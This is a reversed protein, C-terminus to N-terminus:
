SEQLCEIKRLANIMNDQGLNVNSVVEWNEDIKIPNKLNANDLNKSSTFIILEDILDNKLFSNMLEAGGEVLLTTIGEQALALLVHDLSLMGSEEKIPIYKCFSTRSKLFNRQSCLVLTESQGDRFLNINLPLQRNTDLVVRLPNSGKVYRVTLKPNDILATNRGVMVADVKSRLDHVEKLSEKSSILTQTRNDIGLYGNSSQAVKAIVWPRGKKIWKVFGKNLKEAEGKCLGINVKIGYSKLEKIGDGSIKPNPDIMSVFVEKVGNEFLLKTCSSTKSEICCPELTIYAISDQPSVFSNKIANEEAHPGGYKEHFGEGIIINDKVLVCGVKPNPSVNTGGLKALEIAREMYILHNKLIM